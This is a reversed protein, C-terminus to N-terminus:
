KIAPFDVYKILFTAQLRGGTLPYCGFYNTNNKEAEILKRKAPLLRM